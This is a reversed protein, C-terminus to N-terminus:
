NREEPGMEPNGRRHHISFSTDGLHLILDTGLLLNELDQFLYRNSRKLGQMYSPENLRGEIKAENFSLQWAPITENRGYQRNFYAFFGAYANNATQIRAQVRRLINEPIGGTPERPPVYRSWSRDDSLRMWGYRPSEGILRVYDRNQHRFIRLCLQGIALTTRNRNARMDEATAYLDIRNDQQVEITDGLVVADRFFQLYGAQEQSYYHGEDDRLLFFMEGNLMCRSALSIQDSLLEEESLIRFPTYPALLRKDADGLTQQYRNYITLAQPNEVILFDAQQGTLPGSILVLSIILFLYNRMIFVYTM